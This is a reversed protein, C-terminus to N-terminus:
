RFGGEVAFLSGGLAEQVYTQTDNLHFFNLKDVLAHHLYENYKAYGKLKQELLHHETKCCSRKSRLDSLPRDFKMEIMKDDVVPQDNVAVYYDM